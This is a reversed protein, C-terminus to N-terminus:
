FLEYIPLVKKQYQKAIDFDKRGELIRMIILNPLLWRRIMKIQKKTENRKKLWNLIDTYNAVDEDLKEWSFRSLGDTRGIYYKSMFQDVHITKNSFSLAKIIFECDEGWKKGITFNLHNTDILNKSFMWVDLQMMIKMALYQFVVDKKPSQAIVPYDIGDKSSYYNGYCIDANEKKMMNVQSSIKRPLLIDDSDLFSIFSGNAMDIGRNRASSVGGNKQFTYEIVLDNTHCVLGKIVEYTDDTSGDDIILIELPRYDQKIVSNITTLIVDARNYTPIIVSVLEDM